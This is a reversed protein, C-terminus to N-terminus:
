PTWVQLELPLPHPAQTPQEDEPDGSAPPPLM